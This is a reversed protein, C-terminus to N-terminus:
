VRVSMKPYFALALNQVLGLLLALGAGVWFISRPDNTWHVALGSLAPPLMYAAGVLAEHIGANRARKGPEELSYSLNHAYVTAAAVGVIVVGLAVTWPNAAVSLVLLGAVSVFPGARVTLLKHEWDRWTLLVVYTLSTVLFMLSALAGGLEKSFGHQEVLYRPLFFIILAYAGYVGLLGLRTGVLLRKLKARQAEPFAQVVAASSHPFGAHPSVMWWVLGMVALALAASVLLPKTATEGLLFGTALTGVGNGASFAICFVMTSQLISLRRNLGTSAHESASWFLCIVMANVSVILYVQWVAQALALLGVLGTFLTLTGLMVRRPGWHHSLKGLALGAVVYWFSGCAVIYGVVDLGGGLNGVVFPLATQMAFIAVSMLVAFINNVFPPLEPFERKM